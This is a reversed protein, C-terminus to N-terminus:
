CHINVKMEELVIEADDGVGWYGGGRVCFLGNVLGIGKVSM